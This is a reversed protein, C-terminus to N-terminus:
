GIDDNVYRMKQNRNKNRCDIETVDKKMMDPFFLSFRHIGTNILCKTVNKMSSNIDM